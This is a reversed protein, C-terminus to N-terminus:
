YKAKIFKKTKIAQRAAVNSDILYVTVTYFGYQWPGTQLTAVYRDTVGFYDGYMQHGFLDNIVVLVQSPNKVVIELRLEDITINPLLDFDYPECPGDVYNSLHYAFLAIKPNRYTKGDCGCVPDYEPCNCLYFPNDIQLTDKCPITTFQALSQFGLMVFLIAYLIRM